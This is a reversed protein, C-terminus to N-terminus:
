WYGFLLFYIWHMSTGSEGRSYSGSFGSEGCNKCYRSNNANMTGCSDCKKM